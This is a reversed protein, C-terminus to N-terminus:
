EVKEFMEPNWYPLRLENTGPLGYFRLWGGYEDEHVERITFITHRHKMLICSSIGFTDIRKLNRKMRVHDTPHFEM